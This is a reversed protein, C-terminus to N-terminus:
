RQLFLVIPVMFYGQDVSHFQRSMRLMRPTWTPWSSHFWIMFSQIRPFSKLGCLTVSLKVCQTLTSKNADWFIAWATSYITTQSSLSFFTLSFAAEIVWGELLGVPRGSRSTGLGQIQPRSPLFLPRLSKMHKELNCFGHWARGPPRSDQTLLHPGLKSLHPEEWGTARPLWHLTHFSCIGLHTCM